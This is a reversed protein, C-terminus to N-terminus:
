LVTIEIVFDEGGANSSNYVGLSNLPNANNFRLRGGIYIPLTSAPDSTLDYTAAPAGSLDNCNNAAGFTSPTSLAIRVRNIFVTDGANNAIRLRRTCRIEINGTDQVFNIHGRTHGGTLSFEAINNNINNNPHLLIRGNSTPLSSVSIDGFNLTSITAIGGIPVFRSTANLNLSAAVVIGPAVCFLFLLLFAYRQFM